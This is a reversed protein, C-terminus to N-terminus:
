NVSEEKQESIEKCKEELEKIIKQRTEWGKAYVRLPIPM